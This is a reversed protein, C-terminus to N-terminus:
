QPAGKPTAPTKPKDPEPSPKPFEKEPEPKPTEKPKPEPEEVPKPKQIEAHVALIRRTCDVTARASLTAGTMNKVKSHLKLENTLALGVIQAFWKASPLYRKPEAFALVEIRAVKGDPGVVIMLTQRHTRVTHSDFYATGVPKEDKTARYAHIVTATFPTKAAKAIAKVQEPKLFVTTREVKCKPFALALAEEQTLNGPGKEAETEQAPTWGLLLFFAM